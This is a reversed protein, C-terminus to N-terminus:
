SVIKLKRVELASRLEEVEKRLAETQEKTKGIPNLEQAKSESGDRLMFMAKMTFIYVAANFKEDPNIIINNKGLEFWWKLAFDTALKKADMFDEHDDLWEYMKSRSVGIVPGFTEFPNGEMGHKILMMCYEPKYPIEPRGMKKKAM